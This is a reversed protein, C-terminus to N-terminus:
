GCDCIKRDSVRVIEEGCDLVIVILDVSMVNRWTDMIM